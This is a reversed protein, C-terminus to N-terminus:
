LTIREKTVETASHKVILQYDSLSDFYKGGTVAYSCTILSNTCGATHGWESSNRDLGCVSQKRLLWSLIRGDAGLDGSHYRVKQNESM